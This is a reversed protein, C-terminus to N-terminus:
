IDKRRFHLKLVLPAAFKVPQLGGGNTIMITISSIEDSLLTYYHIRDFQVVRTHFTHNSFLSPPKDGGGGGGGVREVGIIRLLPSYSHGTMHPRIVDAYVWLSTIAREISPPFMTQPTVIKGAKDSKFFRGEDTLQSRNFGLLQLLSQSMEMRFPGKTASNDGVITLKILGLKSDETAAISSVGDKSLKALELGKEFLPKLVETWLTSFDRCAQMKVVAKEDLTASGCMKYAGGVKENICFALWIDDAVVPQWDQQFVMEALGVEWKYASLRIPQPLDVKYHGGHNNPHALLSADSPLDVYFSTDDM